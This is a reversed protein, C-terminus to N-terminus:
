RSLVRLLLLGAEGREVRLAWERVRSLLRTQRWLARCQLALLVLASLSMLWDVSLDAGLWRRAASVDGGDAPLPKLAGSLDSGSSTVTGVNPDDDGHGAMTGNVPAIPPVTQHLEGECLGARDIALTQQIAGRTSFDFVVALQHHHCATGLPGPNVARLCMRLSFAISRALFRYPGMQAGERSSAARNASGLPGGGGDESDDEEELLPQLPGIDGPRLDWTLETHGPAARLPETPHSVFTDSDYLVARLQVPQPEQLGSTPNTTWQCAPYLDVTTANPWSSSSHGPQDWAWSAEAARRTMEDYALVTRRVAQAVDGPDYLTVYPETWDLAEGLMAREWARKSAMHFFDDQWSSLLLKTTALVLLAMQLMLKWPVRGFRLMKEAATLTLRQRITMKKVHKRGCGCCRIRLGGTLSCGIECASEPGGICVTDPPLDGTVAPTGVDEAYGGSIGTGAVLPTGAVSEYEDLGVAGLEENPISVISGERDDRAQEAFPDSEMRGLLPTRKEDQM